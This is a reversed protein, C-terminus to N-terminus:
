TRDAAFNALAGYAVEARGTERLRPAHVFTWASADAFLAQLVMANLRHGGRSSRYSALLPAGSLTLDGVADLTKHRVFENAFRLGEPNLIRGEGIAVTNELSAGLARGAAWLREVDRMFGFTRARALERRFAGPTLEVSLRQRGILPSDFDIEVDLHFGHHPVLEGWCSADEVRIPKIVKIFKRPESLTRIGCEDIADVFPAASGDMIPVEGSDIEIYANDISLGRLAALLHEVTAISAGSRSGLVTCLTVNTIARYDAPIEATISKGSTALFRIGTDAPAPHIVISAPAGSHVGTGTLVIEGAVTTQRADFNRRTM